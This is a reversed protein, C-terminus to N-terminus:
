RIAYTSKFYEGVNTGGPLVNKHRIYYFRRIESDINENQMKQM